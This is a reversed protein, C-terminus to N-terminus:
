NTGPILEVAFEELQIRSYRQGSGGTPSGGNCTCPYSYTTSGNSATVAVPTAVNQSGSGCGSGSAVIIEDNVAYAGSAVTASCSTGNGTLATQSVAAELSTQGTISVTTPNATNISFTGNAATDLSGARWSDSPPTVQSSQSNRNAVFTQGYASVATSTMAYSLIQSAGFNIGDYKYNSGVATNTWLATIRLMGNLGMAGAPVTCSGLTYQGTPASSWGSANYILSPVANQCLVRSLSYGNLTAQASPTDTLPPSAVPARTSDTPHTHDSHAATSASGANGTGDMNPTSSGFGPFSTPVNAVPSIMQFHSGDYVVSVIQGATIDGSALASAGNQKYITVAGLGNVNLTSSGNITNAAKFTVVMAPNYASPAPSLTVVFADLSGTDAAYTYSQQQVATVAARTTDTPHTHDSRAPTLSVGPSGSGDMNPTSSSFAGSGFNITGGQFISFQNVGNVYISFDGTADTELCVQDVGTKSDFCLAKTQDNAVGGQIRLFQTADQYGGLTWAEGAEGGWPSINSGSTHLVTAPTFFAPYPAFGAVKNGYQSYLNNEVVLPNGPTVMAAVARNLTWYQLGSSSTSPGVFAATTSFDTNHVNCYVDQLSVDTIYYGIKPGSSDGFAICPAPGSTREMYLNKLVSGYSWSGLQVNPGGYMSISSTDIMSELGNLYAGIGGSLSNQIHSNTVHLRSQGNDGSAGYAPDAANQYIGNFPQSTSAWMYVHDVRADWNEGEYFINWASSNGFNFFLTNEVFSKTVYENFYIGASANSGGTFQCGDITFPLASYNGITLGSAGMLVAAGTGTYNLVTGRECKLTVPGPFNMTTSYNYTGVPIMITPVPSLVSAATYASNARAGVDTGAFQESSVLGITPQPFVTNSTPSGESSSIPFLVACVLILSLFLKKM